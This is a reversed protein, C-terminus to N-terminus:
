IYQDEYSINDLTSHMEAITPCKVKIDDYLINNIILTIEEKSVM